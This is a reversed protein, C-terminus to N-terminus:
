RVRGRAFDYAQQYDALAYVALVRGRADTVHLGGNHEFGGLGDPIAIVDADHLLARMAPAALPAAVQWGPLRARHERAYGALSATDDRAPDFSLSVLGIRGEMGDARIRSQLQAFESGLARCVSMCRTYIFDVLYLQAGQGPQVGAGFLRTTQGLQNRTDIAPLALAHQGIREARRDDLTWATFGFTLYHLGAVALALVLLLALAPGAAAPRAPSMM